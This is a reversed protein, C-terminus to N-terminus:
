FEELVFFFFVVGLGLVGCGAELGLEGVSCFGTYSNYERLLCAIEARLLFLLTIAQYNQLCSVTDSNCLCSHSVQMHVRGQFETFKMRTKEDASIM